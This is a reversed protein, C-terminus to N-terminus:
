KINRLDIYIVKNHRKNYNDFAETYNIALKKITNRISKCQICLKNKSVFKNKDQFFYYLSEEMSKINKM